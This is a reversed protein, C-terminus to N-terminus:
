FIISILQNVINKNIEPTFHNLEIYIHTHTDKKKHERGNYTIVLYQTYNGKRYLLVENKIWEIYLLKCRSVEFEWDKGGGSWEGKAAALRKSTCHKLSLRVQHGWVAHSLKM